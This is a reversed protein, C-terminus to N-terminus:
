VDPTRRGVAQVLWTPLTVASTFPLPACELGAVPVIRAPPPQTGACGPPPSGELPDGALAPPFNASELIGARIGAPLEKGSGPVEREDPPRM